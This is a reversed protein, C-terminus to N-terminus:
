PMRRPAVAGNFANESSCVSFAKKVFTLDSGRVGGSNMSRHRILGQLREDGKARASQPSKLM